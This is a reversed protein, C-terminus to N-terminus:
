QICIAHECNPLTIGRMMEYCIPCEVGDKFVLKKRFLIACGRCLDKPCRACGGCGTTQGECFEFNKCPGPEISM